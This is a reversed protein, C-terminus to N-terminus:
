DEQDGGYERYIAEVAAWNTARTMRTSERESRLVEIAEICLSDALGLLKAEADARLCPDLAGMRDLLYEVDHWDRSPRTEFGALIDIPADPTREISNSRANITVVNHAPALAALQGRVNAEVNTSAMLSALKSASITSVLDWLGLSRLASELRHREVSDTPPLRHSERLSISVRATNGQIRAQGTERFFRVLVARLMAEQKRMRELAQKAAGFADVLNCLVMQRAEGLRERLERLRKISAVLSQPQIRSQSELVEFAREANLVLHLSVRGDLPPDLEAALTQILRDLEPKPLPKTGCAPSPM